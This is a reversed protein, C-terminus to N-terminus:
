SILKLAEQVSDVPLKCSSNECVFIRTKGATIRNHLLPLTEEKGPCFMCNPLYHLQLELALKLADSGAIAIEYQHASLSLALNLWNAHGSPYHLLSESVVMMMAKATIQYHRKDLLHGLRNLNNAMVSNSAPIVNDQVEISRSILDKQSDRSFHFITRKENYFERFCTTCLGDAQTLYNPKGTLEFLDILAQIVLAYDELFGDIRAIGNKYSHLLIGPEPQLNKTLFEMTNEALELYRKEGFAKYCDTLGSIVLANWSTLIKDDLGPRVRENRAMNLKAKWTTIKLQLIEPDLAHAKAFSQDTQRRLLIYNGDEWYGKENVNFYDSFLNFDTGIIQQLEEKKWVYFKGEVGESDADLSSYFGHDPSLMERTLWGTTESVVQRYLENKFKRYAQAYLSLLQGNDYLMKEFHPVKWFSDTSYRSFGGGIQDYIGGLAMKELSTIVHAEALTDNQQHAWRLLFRLNVPMMFKPAGRSGGEELDFSTTWSKIATTLKETDIKHVENTVPILATQNIGETLKEAYETTKDPNNQHYDAIQQLTHQWAEKTFYTGGWIPRGDPLAVANLPWGGRQTMLQVATMYIHDIDPREERDVKICVFHSNMLEAVTEDEFSEHEMVHCWHCAAYGISILLLKNETKAKELAAEGWPMWNVPNHAHQLLYPSTEHILENTHKHTQM